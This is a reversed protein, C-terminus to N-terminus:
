LLSLSFVLFIHLFVLFSSPFFSSFALFYSSILPFYISPLYLSIRSISSIEAAPPPQPLAPCFASCAGGNCVRYYILNTVSPRPLVCLVYLIRLFYSSFVFFKCPFALLCVRYYILHIVLVFFSSSFVLFYLLLAPFYSSFRHFYSSICPFALFSMSFVLPFRGLRGLLPGQLGGPGVGFM